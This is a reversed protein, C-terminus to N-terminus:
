CCSEGANPEALRRLRCPLSSLRLGRVPVTLSLWPTMIPNAKSWLAIAAYTEVVSVLLRCRGLRGVQCM